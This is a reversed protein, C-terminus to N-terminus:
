WSSRPICKMFSWMWGSPEPSACPLVPREAIGLVRLEHLEGRYLSRVDLIDFPGDLRGTVPRQGDEGDDAPRVDALRSEDVADDPPTLSDYFVLPTVRSRTVYSASHAPRRKLTTSV